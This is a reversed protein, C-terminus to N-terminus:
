RRRNPRGHGRHTSRGHGGGGQHERRRNHKALRLGVVPVLRAPPMAGGGLTRMPCDSRRVGNGVGEGGGAGWLDNQQDDWGRGM